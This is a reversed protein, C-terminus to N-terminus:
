VEGVPNAQRASPPARSPVCLLLNHNLSQSSRGVSGVGAAEHAFFSSRAEGTGLGPEDARPAERRQGYPRLEHETPDHSSYGSM